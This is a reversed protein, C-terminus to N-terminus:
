GGVDASLLLLTDGERLPTDPDSVFREGNLSLKFADHITGTGRRLVWDELAPRIRGLERLAQGVTSAELRLMPTGARLRPVGYFEISIM